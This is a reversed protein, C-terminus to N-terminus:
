GNRRPRQRQTPRRRAAWWFTRATGFSLGGSWTRQRVSPQYTSRSHTALLYQCGQGLRASNNASGDAKMAKKVWQLFSCLPPRPLLYLSCLGEGTASDHQQNLQELWEERSGTQNALTSVTVEFSTAPEASCLASANRRRLATAAGGSHGSSAWGSLAM